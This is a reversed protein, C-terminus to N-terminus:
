WSGTASQVIGQSTIRVRFRFSGGRVKLRGSVDWENDVPNIDFSLHDGDYGTAFQFYAIALNAATEPAKVRLDPASATIAGNWQPLARESFRLGWHLDRNGGYYLCNAVVLAVPVAGYRPSREDAHIVMIEPSGSDALMMVHLHPDFVESDHEQTVRFFATLITSDTRSGPIAAVGVLSHVRRFAELKGPEQEHCDTSAAPLPGAALLTFVWLISMLRPSQSLQM